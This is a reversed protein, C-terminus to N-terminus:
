RSVVAPAELAPCRVGLADWVVVWGGLCLEVPAVTVASHVVAMETDSRTPDHHEDCQARRTSCTLAGEQIFMWDHEALHLTM